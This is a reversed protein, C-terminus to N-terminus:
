SRKPQPRSAHGCGSRRTAVVLAAGASLCAMAWVLDVDSRRGTAAMAGSRAPTAPVAETVPLAAVPQRATRPVTTTTPATTTTPPVTTPPVTTTTPATTPPVTTTTPATTTPATTTPATTTPATTTPATATPPVTTPPPTEAGVAVTARDSNDALTGADEEPAAEVAADLTITGREGEVAPGRVTLESQEGPGLPAHSCRLTEAEIQQCLWGSEVDDGHLSSSSALDVVVDTGSGTGGENRVVVSWEVEDDGVQGSVAIALDPPPRDPRRVFALDVTLNTDADRAPEFRGTPDDGLPEAEESLTVAVTGVGGDPLVRADHGVDENRDDDPSPQPDPAVAYGALPGGVDFETAPVVVRYSGAALGDVSWRGGEDTTTSAVPSGDDRYVEISVHSLGEDVAADYAGDGNRDDFVLDGLALAGPWPESAFTLEVQPVTLTGTETSTVIPRLEYRSGRAVRDTDFHLTVTFPGVEGAALFSFNLGARTPHPDDGRIWVASVADPGGIEPCSGPDAAVDAWQCPFSASGPGHDAAIGPDAGPDLRGDAQGDLLDLETVDRASVWVEEYREREVSRLQLPPGGDSPSTPAALLVTLDLREVDILGANSYSVDLAVPDGAELPGLAPDPRADVSLEATAVIGLPVRACSANVSDLVSRALVAASPAVADDDPWRTAVCGRLELTGEPAHPSATVIIEARRADDGAPGLDWAVLYRDHADDFTAITPTPTVTEVVANPVLEAALWVRANTAPLDGAESPGGLASASEASATATLVLTASAGARVAAPSVSAVATYPNPPPPVDAAYLTSPPGLFVAVVVVTAALATRLTENPM